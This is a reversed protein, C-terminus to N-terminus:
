IKKISHIIVRDAGTDEAIAASIVASLKARDESVTALKRVSVIRMRSIDCGCDEAIAASIVPILRKRDAISYRNERISLIRIKSVDCGVDEAIAASIAAVVESRNKIHAPVYVDEQPMQPIVDSHTDTRIPEYKRAEQAHNGLWKFIAGIINCIFIICILSVFVTGIGLGAIVLDNLQEGGM